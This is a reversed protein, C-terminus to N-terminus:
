KNQSYALYGWVYANPGYTEMPTGEQMVSWRYIDFYWENLPWTFIDPYVTANLFYKAPWIWILADKHRHYDFQGYAILGDPVKQGSLRSDIHLKNKMSREHVGTTYVMNMPNAGASYQCALVIGRLYKEESSIYHARCLEIANPLSFYGARLIRATDSTTHNFSNGRQYFLALEADEIIISKSKDKLINSIGKTNILSFLAARQGAHAPLQTRVYDWEYDSQVSSGSVRRPNLISNEYFVNLWNKDSTLGFLEIAALNRMDLVNQPHSPLSDVDTWKLFEDESWRMAKLASKMYIDSLKEDRGKLLKAAKAATAVYIYGSWHDPAYVMVDLSELWSTEGEIPHEEAEIGGRIGGDPMQLMRYFNLNFLVEDLLDPLNNNSEPINLDISSLGEEYMEFLELQSHSALLHQIRRDWDGADNYGGFAGSSDIKDTRGKILNTFNDPDTNHVNLGGGAELLSAKSQYVLVHKGPIYNEPRKFESYPAGLAIGSRINYFGKMSIKFADIWIDDAIKFPLSCGIGELFVQYVGSKTFDHFDLHYVNANTLNREASTSEVQNDKFSPQIKGQYVVEKTYANLLYFKNLNDYDFGGGSGAWLSLYARKVIENPRFGILSVHLAECLIHKPLFKFEVFNKSVNLEGLDIKYTKGVELPESMELYIIHLMSMKTRKSDVWNDPKSKRYVKNITLPKNESSVKYNLTQDIKELSLPEGRFSEFYTMMEDNKGAIWAITDSNRVLMKEKAGSPLVKTVIISDGKSQIYPVQYSKLVEGAKIHIAIVQPAVTQIDIIEPLLTTLECKMDSCSSFFMATGLAFLVINLSTNKWNKM